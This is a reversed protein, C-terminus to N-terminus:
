PTCNPKTCQLTCARADNVTIKGDGDIDLLSGAPVLAGRQAFILNIDNRDINSDGDVDCKMIWDKTVTQSCIVQGAQNTFCAKITDTGKSNSNNTYTFAVQGNPDSHCDAPNCTGTAGANVGAVTFTVLINQQPSNLLDKLTATVTHTYDKLGLDNVASPPSLNIGVVTTGCPLASVPTPNFPVLLQQLWIKALNGAGTTSPSTSTGEYDTDMGNYIMLGNVYRAYTQVPGTVRNVNTGSIDLCWNPDFTTMVNMDGIADTQTALSSANIYYPSLTDTSSLNNNEIINATGLAGQAGPNNTTFPFPLWSYDQPRCESDWIILKGGNQVFTVLDAKQQATLNGSVNCALGGSGSSAVNLLVTDCASAGCTQGPGLTALSINQRLLQHFSFATFGDVTSPFAGGNAVALSGVYAVNQSQSAGMVPPALALMMCGVIVFLLKKTRCTREM